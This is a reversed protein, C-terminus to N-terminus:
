VKKVFVQILESAGTTGRRDCFKIGYFATTPTTLLLKTSAAFGQGVVGFGEIPLFEGLRRGNTRKGGCCLGRTSDTSERTHGHLGCFRRHPCMLTLLRRLRGKKPLDCAGTM